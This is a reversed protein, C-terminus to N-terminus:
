KETGAEQGTSNQDLGKFAKRLPYVGYPWDDPLLLHDRNPTGVVDIGLMEILEREYLTASPILECVSPVAPRNYSLEVRLTVVAAGECFHYLVEFHGEPFASYTIEDEEVKEELGLDLGTIAALYGWGANLLAEVCPIVSAAEVSIDLRHEEPSTTRQVWPQLIEEAKKLLAPTDM